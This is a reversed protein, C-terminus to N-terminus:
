IILCRKFGVKTNMYAGDHATCGIFQQVMAGTGFQFMDTLVGAIHRGEHVGAGKPCARHSLYNNTLLPLNLDGDVSMM